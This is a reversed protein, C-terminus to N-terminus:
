FQSEIFQDTLHLERQVLFPPVEENTHIFSLPYDKLIVHSMVFARKIHSTSTCIVLNPKEGGLGHYLQELIVKSKELNEVTNRSESEVVLFKKDIGMNVLCEEMMVAGEPKVGDSSGGSLLLRTTVYSKGLVESYVECTSSKFFDVAVKLRMNMIKKNRNGLVIIVTEEM